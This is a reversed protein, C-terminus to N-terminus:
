KLSESVFEGEDCELRYILKDLMNKNHDDIDVIELGYENYLERGIVRTIKAKFELNQAKNISASVAVNVLSEPEIDERFVAGVGTMSINKIIAYVNKGIDKPFVKAQFNVLYRKTRRSNRFKSIKKVVVEVLWPYNIEIE